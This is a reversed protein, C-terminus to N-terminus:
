RRVEDIFIEELSKRQPVLSVVTGGWQQISSLFQTVEKQEIRVMVRQDQIVTHWKDLDVRLLKQPDLQFTVEVGSVQEQVIDGLNGEHILRGSNLIGIRDAVMEADSLIHSSFFITKGQGKLELILDRFDKRGIPDLSAMPEDLILLDPDNIIAQALGLRQMMGRSYKRILLNGRQGLGVRDLLESTKKKRIGSDLGFIRGMFDLLERGSLYGYMRPQEPLYGIRSLSLRSRSTKGMIWIKGHTPFILQTLLKIATTKGAGNPGIFAFVTGKRVELNLNDLGSIGKKWFDTPYVKSLEKTQIALDTM